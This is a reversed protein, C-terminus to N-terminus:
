YPDMNARLITFWISSEFQLNSRRSIDRLELFLQFSDEVGVTPQPMPIMGLVNFVDNIKDQNQVLTNGLLLCEELVHNPAQCNLCSSTSIQNVQNVYSSGKVELAEIMHMLAIIKAKAVKFTEISHIGGRSTPHEIHFSRTSSKWQMTKEFLEELFERAGEETNRM